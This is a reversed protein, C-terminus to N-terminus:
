AGFRALFEDTHQGLAPPPLRLAPREADIKWPLAM